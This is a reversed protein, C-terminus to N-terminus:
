SAVLMDGFKQLLYLINIRLELPCQTRALLRVTHEDITHTQVTLLDLQQCQLGVLAEMDWRDLGDASYYLSDTCDLMLQRLAPAQSFLCQVHCERLATGRFRLGLTHLRPLPLTLLVSHEVNMHLEKLMSFHGLLSLTQSDTGIPTLQELQVAAPLLPQLRFGSIRFSNHRQELMGSLHPALCKVATACERDAQYCGEMCVSVRLDVGHSSLLRRCCDGLKQLAPVGSLCGPSRISLRVRRGAFIDGPAFNSAKVGQGGIGAICM